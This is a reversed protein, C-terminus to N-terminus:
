DYRKFNDIVEPTQKYEDQISEPLRQFAENYRNDLDTLVDEVSMNSYKGAFINSITQRYLSGQVDVRTDPSPLMIVKDPMDAFDSFGKQTPESAAIDVAEQRFPIYLSQTYMQATNEDSYFFKLVELTKEPNDLAAKGVGLLSTADAFEKYIPEEETFSPISIVSWNIDTPFQDYYVSTDFSAGPIMGVRGEAFQARASDADLGEFGPFVSNDEIMGMVAEVVPTFASYDFEMTEHNFGVHGVNTGNPRILYTSIMWDSKLGLIWGYARGNSAETILRAAERVEQWTKPYEKIDAKKFLDDNVIFKYTTLNYPLTYVEGNFIHQNNVLNNGYSEVLEDGGPLKTIPVAYGLDIFNTLFAMTPRFLEPAEDDVVAQKIVDQYESGFVTYEIEIGLERGKTRNFEEIQKLRLEREHANDSWVRIKEIKVKSAEQNDVKNGTPPEVAEKSCSVLIIVSCLLIVVCSVRKWISATKIKTM